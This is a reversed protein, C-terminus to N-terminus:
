KQDAIEAGLLAAQWANFDAARMEGEAAGGSTL